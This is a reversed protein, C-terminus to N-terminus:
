KVDVSLQGMHKPDPNNEDLGGMAGELEKMVKEAKGSEM